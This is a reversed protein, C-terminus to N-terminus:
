KAEDLEELVGRKGSIRSKDISSNIGRVRERYKSLRVRFPDSPTSRAATVLECVM